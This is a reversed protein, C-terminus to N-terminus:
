QISTAYFLLHKTKGDYKSLMVNWKDSLIWMNGVLSLYVMLIDVYRSSFNFCGFTWVKFNHGTKSSYSNNTSKGIKYLLRKTICILQRSSTHKSLVMLIKLFLCKQVILDNLHKMTNTTRSLIHYISSKIQQRPVILIHWQVTHTTLNGVTLQPNM